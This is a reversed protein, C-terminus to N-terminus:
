HSRGKINDSIPKKKGPVARNYLCQHAKPVEGKSVQVGTGNVSQIKQLADRCWINKCYTKGARSCEKFLTLSLAHSLLTCLQVRISAKCDDLDPQGQIHPKMLLSTPMDFGVESRKSRHDLYFITHM